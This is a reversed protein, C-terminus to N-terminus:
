KVKIGHKVAGERMKREIYERMSATEQRFAADLGAGGYKQLAGKHKAGGGASNWFIVRANLGGTRTAPTVGGKAIGYQRGTDGAEFKIRGYKSFKALRRLAPIWGSRIFAVSRLRSRILNLGMEALVKASPIPKGAKRLRAVIIAVALSMSYGGSYGLRKRKLSKGRKGIVSQMEGGLERRISDADAKHTNQIAAGCIFYAKENLAEPLTRSSYELYKKLTKNFDNQSRPTITLRAKV